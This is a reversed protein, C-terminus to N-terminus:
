QNNDGNNNPGGNNPGNNNPGNNNPMTQNPQIVVYATGQPTWVLLLVNQGAPIKQMQDEYEQVTTVPHRDVQMIVEGTGLGAIDAASGSRVGQIAVGEVDGSLNLQQRLAPTLGEVSIGLQVHGTQGPANNEAEQGSAHYVGVTANLTMPKGDRLVGLKIATGPAMESVAVQLDTANEIPKSNLERIVDGREFGAKSAPTDPSVQEVLAGAATPVNFFHANVPSIDTIDIGLFGHVVKGTKIIEGAYHEALDSPIAFGAGAFSGSSTYIFTDIGVVRGYANVLPGGSNGPNIAADTQIYDRPARANNSPNVARDVASVIGRTVSFQLTGFPSGFALVTEGPKLNASNGWPVTPLGTADIKIVALDDLTDVGVVKAPFIRQDHLTVQIQTAGDVVHHNTVIYGDPSIIFGSGIAQQYQPQQQQGNGQGFFFFHRFEPPLDQPPIGGMGGGGNEGNQAHEETNAKSTVFINVVAPMVHGAVAEVADNLSVLPAITSANLQPPPDTPAAAQAANRGIFLSAGFLLAAITAAPVAARKLKAVLSNTPPKM